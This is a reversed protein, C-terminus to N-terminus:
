VVEVMKWDSGRIAYLRSLFMFSMRTRVLNGDVDLVDPVKDQLRWKHRAQVWILGDEVM